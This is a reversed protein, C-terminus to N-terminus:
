NVSEPMTGSEGVGKFGGGSVNNGSLIYSTQLNLVETNPIIYNKM